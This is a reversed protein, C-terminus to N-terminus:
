IGNDLFSGRRTQFHDTLPPVGAFVFGIQESRHVKSWAARPFVQPHIDPLIGTKGKADTVAVYSAVGDRKSHSGPHSDTFVANEGPVEDKTVPVGLPHVQPSRDLSPYLFPGPLGRPHGSENLIKLKVL